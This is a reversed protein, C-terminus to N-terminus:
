GPQVALCASSLASLDLLLPKPLHDSLKPDVQPEKVLARSAMIYIYQLSSVVSHHTIHICPIPIQMIPDEARYLAGRERRRSKASLSWDDGLCVQRRSGVEYLLRM